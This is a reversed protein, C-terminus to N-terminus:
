KHKGNLSFQKEDELAFDMGQGDGLGGGLDPEKGLNKLLEYGSPIIYENLMPETGEEARMMLRKENWTFYDILKLMEAMKNMDEQMEPLSSIDFDIFKNGRESGYFQPILWRNLEDRLGTWEPVIKNTIMNKQAQIKNNYTSHDNNFILYDLGYVNCLDEFCWDLGDLIQMDRVSMGLQIAQLAANTVETRGKNLNGNISSDIMDRVQSMQDPTFEFKDSRTLLTQVGGNKFLSHLAIRGENSTDLTLAAAKMPSLGYLHSGSTSFAPNEYKWHLINEVPIRQSNFMQL